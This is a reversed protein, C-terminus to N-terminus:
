KQSELSDLADKSPTLRLALLKANLAKAAQDIEEQTKASDHVNQADTVAKEFAQDKNSFTGTLGNAKDLAAKLVSKNLEPQPEPDVEESYKGATIAKGQTENFSEASFVVDRIAGKFGGVIGDANKVGGITIQDLSPTKSFLGANNAGSFGFVREGDIYLVFTDTTGPCCVVAANHWEDDSMNIQDTDARTHALDPRVVTKSASSNYKLGILSRNRIGAGTPYLDTVTESAAKGALIASSNLDSTKVRFFISGTAMDKVRAVESSELEVVSTGDFTEGKLQKYVEANAKYADMGTKVEKAASERDQSDTWALKYFYTKEPQATSDTYTSSATDAIKEYTGNEAESRLITVLKGDPKELNLVASSYGGAASAISATFDEVQSIVTVPDSDAYVIKTANDGRSVNVSAVAQKGAPLNDFTITTSESDVKDYTRTYSTGDVTVTVEALGISSADMLSTLDVRVTGPAPSTVAPKSTSQSTSLDYGYRCYTSTYDYIGMARVLDDFMVRQGIGNPHLNNGNFNAAGGGVATGVRSRYWDWTTAHDALIANNTKALERLAVPYDDNANGVDARGPVTNCIRLVIVADPNNAKVADILTQMQSVYTSTATGSDNMGLMFIAVDATYDKVRGDIYTSNGTDSAKAGSVATNIVLDDPRNLGVGEPANVYKQFNQTISDYGRTWLAGHTISDGIFLWTLPDDSNLLTRIKKQTENLTSEEPLASVRVASTDGKSITYSMFATKQEENELHLTWSGETIPLTVTSNAHAPATITLDDSKAVIKWGDAAKLVDTNALHVELGAAKSFDATLSPTQDDKTVVPQEKVTHSNLNNESWEFGSSGFVAQSFQRGIQYQGYGNLDGDVTYHKQGDATNKFADTNTQTWHDVVMLHAREQMTLSASFESMIDAIAKAAANENDDPRAHPTQLVLYRNTEDESATAKDFLARLQEKYSVSWAAKQDDATKMYSDIDESGAMYAVARPHVVNLQRDLKSVAEELTNGSAAGNTVYRMKTIESNKGYQWRVYEEFQHPYTRIDATKAFDGETERGGIFLWTNGIESAFMDDRLSAGTYTTEERSLVKAQEKTLIQSSISVYDIQGKFGAEVGNAGTYGGIEIRDFDTIGKLFSKADTGTTDSFSIVERGDVALYLDCGGATNSSLVATHWQGDNLNNGAAGRLANINARPQGSANHGIYLQSGANSLGSSILHKSSSATLAYREASSDTTKFRLIISGDDLDKIANVQDNMNITKSGDFTQESEALQKHAEANQIFAQRGPMASVAADSIETGNQIKYFYTADNSLGTDTWSSAGSAIQGVKVFMGDATESRLVDYAKTDDAPRAITLVAEQYRAKASLVPLAAPEEPDPDTTGSTEYEAKLALIPADANLIVKEGPQYTKGNAKWGKFENGEKTPSAEPITLVAASAAKTVSPVQATFEGGDADFTLSFTKNDPKYTVFSRLEPESMSEDTIAIYDIKGEFYNDAPTGSLNWGGITAEDLGSIAKFGTAPRTFQTRSQNSADTVLSIKGDNTYGLACIHTEEGSFRSVDAAYAFGNWAFQPQYTNETIKSLQFYIRNNNGGGGASDKAMFFMQTHTVNAKPTSKVLITPSDLDKFTSIEEETLSIMTSNNFDVESLDKYFLVNSISDMGAATESNVINSVATQTDDEAKIQYFYLKNTVDTTDTYTGKGDTVSATGAETLEDVKTGRYVKYTLTSDAGEPLTFTLDTKKLGSKVALDTIQVETKSSTEEVALVPVGFLTGPATMTMSLALALVSVKRFVTKRNM